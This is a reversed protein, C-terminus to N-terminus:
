SRGASGAARCTCPSRPRCPCGRCAARRGALVRDGDLGGALVPRILADALLHGEGVLREGLFELAIDLDSGGRDLITALSRRLLGGCASRGACARESRGCASADPEGLQHEPQVDVQRHEAQRGDQEEAHGADREVVGVPEEALASRCTAPRPGPRAGLPECTPVGAAPSPESAAPSGSRDFSTAFSSTTSCRRLVWAIRPASASKRTSSLSHM